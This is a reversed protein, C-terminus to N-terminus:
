LRLQSQVIGQPISFHKQKVCLCRESILLMNRTNLVCLVFLTIISHECNKSVTYSICQRKDIPHWSLKPYICLIKVPNRNAFIAGM